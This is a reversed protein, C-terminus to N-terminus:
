NGAANTEVGSNSMTKQLSLHLVDSGAAQARTIMTFAAIGIVSSILKTNMEMRRFKLLCFALFLTPTYPLVRILRFQWDSSPFPLRKQACISGKREVRKVM